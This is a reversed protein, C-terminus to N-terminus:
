GTGIRVHRMSVELGGESWPNEDGEVRGSNLQPIVSHSGEDVSKLLMIAGNATDIEVLGLREEHGTAVVVLNLDPRILRSATQEGQVAMKVVNPGDEKVM